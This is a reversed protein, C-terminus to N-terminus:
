VEGHGNNKRSVSIAFDPCHLVCQMCGACKEPHAAEPKGLMDSTLVGKPCFAVCLGCQKCWADFVHVEFDGTTVGPKSSSGANSAGEDTSLKPEKTLVSEVPAM